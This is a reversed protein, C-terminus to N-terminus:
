SEYHTCKILFHYYSDSYKETRQITKHLFNYTFDKKISWAFFYWLINQLFSKKNKLFYKKAILIVSLVFHSIPHESMFQSIPMPRIGNKFSKSPDPNQAKNYISKKLCFFKSEKIVTPFFQFWWLSKSSRYRKRLSYFLSLNKLNLFQLCRIRLGSDQGM